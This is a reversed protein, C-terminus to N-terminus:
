WSPRTFDDGTHNSPKRIEDLATWEVHGDDRIARYMLRLDATRLAMNTDGPDFIMSVM